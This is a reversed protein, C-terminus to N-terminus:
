SAAESDVGTSKPDGTGFFIATSVFGAILGCAAYSVPAVSLWDHLLRTGAWGGGSAKTLGRVVFAGLNATLGAVAFAGYLRWGPRVRRSAADLLPGLILLSAAAGPGVGTGGFVSMGGLTVGASAGMALGAGRRPVLSMGLSLPLVVKLIAHGPLRLNLDILATMVAAAFGCGALIALDSVGIRGDAAGVRGLRSRESLPQNVTGITPM